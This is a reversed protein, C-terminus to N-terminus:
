IVRIIYNLIMTPQVVSTAPGAASTFDQNSSYGYIAGGTDLIGRTVPSLAQVSSQVSEAGGSAGLTDGNLPSTLRNASTGGMDDQGAIVRGRLDPINFTTSGDGVGWTTGLVLFLDPYEERSLEQGFCLKFNFGPCGSGCFAIVGGIPISRSDVLGVMSVGQQDALESAEIGSTQYHYIPKKFEQKLQSFSPIM